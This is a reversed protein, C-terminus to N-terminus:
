PIKLKLVKGGLGHKSDHARILVFKVGAPITVGSLSRTFPQEGVHPHLLKRVGLVKGSPDLIDWRDAYHKWGTDAHKVTVDIRFRNGSGAYAQAGVVDAKGALALSPTGTISIITISIITLSLFLPIILPRIYFM